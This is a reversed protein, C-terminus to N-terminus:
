SRSGVRARLEQAQGEARAQHRAPSLTLLQLTRLTGLKCTRERDPAAHHKPIRGAEGPHAYPRVHVGRFHPGPRCRRSCGSCWSMAARTGEGTQYAIIAAKAEDESFGATVRLGPLTGSLAAIARDASGALERAREPTLLTGPALIRSFLEDTQKVMQYGHAAAFAEDSPFLGVADPRKDFVPTHLRVPNVRAVVQERRLIEAISILM